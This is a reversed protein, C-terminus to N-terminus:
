AVGAYRAFNMQAVSDFRQNTARIAQFDSGFTTKKEMLHREELPVVWKEYTFEHFTQFRDLARNHIIDFRSVVNELLTQIEDYDPETYIGLVIVDDLTWFRGRKGYFSFGSEDHYCGNPGLELYKGEIAFPTANEGNLDLIEGNYTGGAASFYSM